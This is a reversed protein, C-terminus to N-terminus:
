RGKIWPIHPKLPYLWYRFNCSIFLYLNKFLLLHFLRVISRKTSGTLVVLQLELYVEWPQAIMDFPVFDNPCVHSLARQVSLLYITVSPWRMQMFPYYEDNKLCEWKRVIDVMISSFGFHIRILFSHSRDFFLGILKRRDNMGIKWQCERLKSKQRIVRTCAHTHEM